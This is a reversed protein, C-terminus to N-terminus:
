GPSADSSTPSAEQQLQVHHTTFIDMLDAHLMGMSKAFLPNLAREREAVAQKAQISSNSVGETEADALQEKVRIWCICKSLEDDIRTRESQTFCPRESIVTQIKELLTARERIKDLSMDM